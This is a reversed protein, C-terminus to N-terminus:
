IRGKTRESYLLKLDEVQALADGLSYKLSSSVPLHSDTYAVVSLNEPGVLLELPETEALLHRIFDQTYEIKESSMANRDVRGVVLYFDNDIENEKQHYKHLVNYRRCGRRLSDLTMPYSTGAVPWGMIVALSDRLAFSRTLPHLGRSSFPYLGDAVFGGIRICFAPGGQVFQFLGPLHMAHVCGFAQAANSHYVETGIRWGELGVITAHVQELAYASFASGLESDLASQLLQVLRALPDPKSGYYAVLTLNM